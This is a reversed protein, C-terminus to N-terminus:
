TEFFTWDRRLLEGARVGRPVKEMMLLEKLGSDGVLERKLEDSTGGPLEKMREVLGKLVRLSGELCVAVEDSIAASKSKSSSSKTRPLLLLGTIRHKVLRISRQLLFDPSPTPFASLVTSISTADSLQPLSVHLFLYAFSVTEVSEVSSLLAWSDRYSPDLDM